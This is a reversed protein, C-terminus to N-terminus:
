SGNEKHGSVRALKGGIVWVSKVRCDVNSLVVETHLMVLLTKLGSIQMEGVGFGGWLTLVDIPCLLISQGIGM